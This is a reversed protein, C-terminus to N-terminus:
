DSTVYSARLTRMKTRGHPHTYNGDIISVELHRLRPRLRGNIWNTVSMNRGAQREFDYNGVSERAPARIRILVEELQWVAEEFELVNM